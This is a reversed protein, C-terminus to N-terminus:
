NSDAAVPMLHQQVQFRMSLLRGAPNKVPWDILLDILRDISQDMLWDVLWDVDISGQADATPVSLNNQLWKILPRHEIQIDKLDRTLNLM